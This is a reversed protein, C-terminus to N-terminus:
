SSVTARPTSASYSNTHRIARDGLADRVAPQSPSRPSANTHSIARAGFEDRAVQQVPPSHPSPTSRHTSSYPSPASSHASSCPSVAFPYGSAYPSSSSSSSSRSSFTSAPPHRSPPHPSTLPEKSPPVAVRQSTVEAERFSGVQTHHPSFVRPRSRDEMRPSIIPQTPAYAATDDHHAHQKPRAGDLKRPSNNSRAPSMTTTGTPPPGTHAGLIIQTHPGVCVQTPGEPGLRNSQGNRPPQGPAPAPARPPPPPPYADAPPRPPQSSPVGVPYAMVVPPKEQPEAVPAVVPGLRYSVNLMGRPEWRHVKRVQYSALQPQQPGSTPAGALLDALPIIVEGVDRDGLVREARLLVHLCGGVAAAATPPVAFRLTANWCPNRGGSPDPATCQRTLPDGSITVVAYVDMRTILNVNKLDRASLLTLELERYAM